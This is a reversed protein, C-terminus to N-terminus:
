QWRLGKYWAILTNRTGSIVPKVQHDVISPFVISQGATLKIPPENPNGIILEGGEYDKSDTLCIITTLKQVVPKGLWVSDSHWPYEMQLQSQYITYQITDTEYWVNLGYRQENARKAIRKLSNSLFPESDAAILKMWYNEARTKNNGIISYGQESKYKNCIEHVKNVWTIDYSQEMWWTIM